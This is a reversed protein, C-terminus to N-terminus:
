AARLTVNCRICAYTHGVSAGINLSGPVMNWLKAIGIRAPM